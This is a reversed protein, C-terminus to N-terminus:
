RPGTYKFTESFTRAGGNSTYKITFTKTAPDYSSSPDTAIPLLTTMSVTVKNTAPDVTLNQVNSYVGLLGYTVANASITKMTVTNSGNGLTSTYTHDYVGDYANKAGFIFLCTAFNGSIPTGSSVSKITFGLALQNAFTFQNTNLNVNFVGYTQGKPITVTYTPVTYAATPLAVTYSSSTSAYGHYTNYGAIISNNLELTVTIDQPAPQGGSYKIPIAFTTPTSKIDFSTNYTNYKYDTSAYEAIPGGADGIEIVAPSNGEQLAPKDKLCSSLGVATLM